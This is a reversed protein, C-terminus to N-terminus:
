FSFLDDIVADSPDTKKTSKPPPTNTPLPDLTITHENGDDDMFSFSADYGAQILLTDRIQRHRKECNLYQFFSRFIASTYFAFANSFRTEDFKLGHKCLNALAEAIMDEKFSYNAFNWKSSIKRALLMWMKALEDTIYGKEKSDIVAKLMDANNLYNKKKKEM